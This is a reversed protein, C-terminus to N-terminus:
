KKRGAEIISSQICTIDKEFGFSMSVIDIGREAAIHIAKSPQYYRMYTFCEFQFGHSILTWLLVVKAVAERALELEDSDRAVRIIHVTARPALQLVLVTLATGHHAADQDTPEEPEGM